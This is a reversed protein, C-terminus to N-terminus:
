FIKFMGRLMKVIVYVFIIMMVTFMVIGTLIEQTPAYPSFTYAANSYLPFEVLFLVALVSDASMWLILLFVKLAYSFKNVSLGGLIGALFLTVDNGIRWDVYASALNFFLPIHWFTAIVISPLVYLIEGRLIKYAIIFGSIYLLYHSLMFLWEYKFEMIETYPNVALILLIIPLSLNKINVQDKLLKM